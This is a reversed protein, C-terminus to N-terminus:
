LQGIEIIFVRSIVSAISELGTTTCRTLMLPYTQHALYEYPESFNYKSERSGNKTIFWLKPFTCQANM